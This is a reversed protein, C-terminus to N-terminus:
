RADARAHADTLILRRGVVIVELRDTAAVRGYPDPASSGVCTMASSRVPRHTGGPALVSPLHAAPWQGARSMSARVFALSCESLRRVGGLGQMCASDLWTLRASCM